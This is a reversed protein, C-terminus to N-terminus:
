TPTPEGRLQAEAAPWWPKRWWSTTIRDAVGGYRRQVEDALRDPTTVITFTDLVEDDIMKAMVDWEGRRSRLYLENQLDGLGHVELVGRYNPTSAYYSLHRRMSDRARPLQDAEAVAIFGPCTVEIDERRRGSKDLGRQLAPLTVERV